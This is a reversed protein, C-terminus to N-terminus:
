CGLGANSSHVISTPTLICTGPACTPPQFFSAVIQGGAEGTTTSAKYRQKECRQFSAYPCRSRSCRSQGIELLFLLYIAHMHLRPLLSDPLLRSHPAALEALALESVKSKCALKSCWVSVTICRTGAEAVITGVLDWAFANPKIRLVIADGKAALGAARQRRPEM